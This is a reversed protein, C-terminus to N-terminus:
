NIFIDLVVHWLKPSYKKVRIISKIKFERNLKSAIEKIKLFTDKSLFGADSGGDILHYHIIGGSKKILLMGNELYKHSEDMYGMIVRDAFHHPMFNMCNDNIPTIINEIHNLEINQVLYKYSIPNLEISMIKKPMSHVAMPISFYGIGAFMDVVVEDKNANIASMRKRENLNGKSYMIKTVDLKFHCGHEKHITETESGILIKRDPKRFNGKIGFDQLVSKCFPHMDFITKAILKAKSQIQPPINIIIINGIIQWGTPVFKLENKTLKQKLLNELSYSKKYDIYRQPKSQNILPYNKFSNLVPIELFKENTNEDIKLKIKRNKDLLNNELLKLRISEANDIPVFIAKKM